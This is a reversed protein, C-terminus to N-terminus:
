FLSLKKNEKEDIIKRAEKFLLFKSSQYITQWTQLLAKNKELNFVLLMIFNAKYDLFNNNIQYKDWLYLDNTRKLIYKKEDMSLNSIGHRNDFTLNEIRKILELDLKVCTQYTDIRLVCIEKIIENDILYSLIDKIHNFNPNTETLKMFLTFFLYGKDNKKEIVTQLTIDKLALTKEKKTVSKKVGKSTHLKNM